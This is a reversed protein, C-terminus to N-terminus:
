AEARAAAIADAVVHELYAGEDRFRLRDVRALLSRSRRLTAGGARRLLRASRAGYRTQALAQEARRAVDSLSTAPPAM